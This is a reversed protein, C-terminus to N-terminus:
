QGIQWWLGVRRRWQRGQRFCLGGFFAAAARELLDVGAQVVRAHGGGIGLGGEIGGLAFVLGCGGHQQQGVPGGLQQGGVLRQHVGAGFLGAQRGAHLGLGVLHCLRPGVDQLLVDGAELLTGVLQGLGELRALRRQQPQLHRQLRGARLAQFLAAALGIASYVAERPLTPFHHHLVDALAPGSLGDTICDAMRFAPLNQM